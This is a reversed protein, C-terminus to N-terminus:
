NNYYLPKDQMKKAPNGFLLNIGFRFDVAGSKYPIYQKGYYLPIHDSIMYFSLPGTKFMLGLGISSFSNNTFSYSFSTSFGRGANINASATVEEWLYNPYFVTRSLLGLSFWNAVSFEGGLFVKTPLATSFNEKKNSVKMNNKLTDIYANFYDTSDNNINYNVGTFKYTGNQTMNYVNDRWWIRGFDIVSASLSLNEFPKYQVGLDLGVGSNKPNFVYKRKQGSAFDTNSIYGYEDTTYTFNPISMDIRSDSTLTIASTDSKVHANLKTTNITASGFLLKFRGGFQWKEDIKKSMGFAFQTYSVAHFNMKSLNYDSHGDLMNLGFRFFDKPLGANVNALASVNVTYYWDNVKFGFDLIGLEFNTEIKNNEKLANLFDAKTKDSYMFTVLSDLSSNYILVKNATLSNNSIGFQVTSLAPFGVYVTSTPQFAPNLLTRQPVNRMFYLTNVNQAKVTCAAFILLFFIYYIRTKM